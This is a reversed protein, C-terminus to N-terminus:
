RLEPDLLARAVPQGTFTETQQVGADTGRDPAARDSQCWAVYNRLAREARATGVQPDKYSRSPGPCDSRLGTNAPFLEAYLPGLYTGYSFGTTLKQDGAWYLIDSGPGGLRHGCPDASPRSPASPM